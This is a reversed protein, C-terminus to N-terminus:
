KCIWAFWKWICLYQQWPCLTEHCMFLMSSHVKQRLNECISFVSAWVCVCKRWDVSFCSLPFPIILVYINASGSNQNISLFCCCCCSLICLLLSLNEHGLTTHSHWPEWERGHLPCLVPSCQFQLLMAVRVLFIETATYTSQLCLLRTSM